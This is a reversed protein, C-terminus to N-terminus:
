ILPILFAPTGNMNFEAGKDECYQEFFVEQNECESFADIDEVINIAYSMANDFAERTLEKIKMRYELFFALSADVLGSTAITKYPQRPPL